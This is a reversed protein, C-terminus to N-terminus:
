SAGFIGGLSSLGRGQDPTCPDPPYYCSNFHVRSAAREEEEKQREEMYRPEWAEWHAEVWQVVATRRNHLEIQPKRHAPCLHGWRRECEPAPEFLVKCEECVSYPKEKTFFKM